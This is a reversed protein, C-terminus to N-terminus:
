KDLRSVVPLMLRSPTTAGHFVVHTAARATTATAIPEDVHPNRDFRPFNSGARAPAMASPNRGATYRQRLIGDSVNYATGDAHVDVLKAAFDASSASTAVYLIASVPGTVELDDALPPTSYVLVDKRAEVDNQAFM